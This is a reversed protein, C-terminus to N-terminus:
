YAHKIFKLDKNTFFSIVNTSEDNLFKLIYASHSVMIVQYKELLKPLLNQFFIVQNILDMGEDIEDILLTPKSDKTKFRKQWDIMLDVAISNPSNVSISSFYGKSFKTKSSSVDLFTMMKNISMQGNSLKIMNNGIAELGSKYVLSATKGFAMSYSFAKKADFCKKNLYYTLVNEYEINVNIHYGTGCIYEGKLYDEYLKNERERNLFGLFETSRCPLQYCQDVSNISMKGAIINLLTSKGCGNPGIILNLGDTFNYLKPNKSIKYLNRVFYDDGGKPSNGCPLLEISKIM